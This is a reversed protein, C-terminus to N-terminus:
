ASQRIRETFSRLWAAAMASYPADDAAYSKMEVLTSDRLLKLKSAVNEAPTDKLKLVTPPDELAQISSALEIVLYALFELRRLLRTRDQVLKLRNLGYVQISTAGRQRQTDDGNPLLLGAPHLPDLNFRLSVAPNDRCPDLLLAAEGSFDTLEATARVGAVPFSNKKGAPSLIPKSNLVLAELNDSYEVIVQGRKRNCDACSPLLNHWDSSLWWYGGHPRDESVAGKPRYHEVDMPMSSAYRTECYACKGHFLTDLAWRVDDGKYAKYDFTEVKEGKKRKQSVKATRKRFERLLELEKPGDGGVLLSKPADTAKRDVRRM